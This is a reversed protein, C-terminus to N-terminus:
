ERWRDHNHIVIVFKGVGGHGNMSLAHGLAAFNPDFPVTPQPM